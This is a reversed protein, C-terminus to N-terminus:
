RASVLGVHQLAEGLGVVLGLVQLVLVRLALEEARAVVAALLQLPAARTFIM